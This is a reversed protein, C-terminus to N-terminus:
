LALLRVNREFNKIEHLTKYIHLAMVGMPAIPADGWSNQWGEGRGWKLLHQWPGSTYM